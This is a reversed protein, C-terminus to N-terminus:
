GGSAPGEARMASLMLPSTIGHQAAAETLFTALWGLADLSWEAVTGTFTANYRSPGCWLEDTIPPHLSIPADGTLSFSGLVDQKFERLWAVIEPAAQRFEPNQGGDVTVRVPTRAQTPCDAFWGAADLLGFAPNMRAAAPRGALHEVPLLLRVGELRLTGIRSAVDGACALFAQVPLTGTAPIPDVLMVQFWAVQAPHGQAGAHESADNMGWVGPAGEVAQALWGMATSRAYFLNYADASCTDPDRWPHPVLEGYLGAYLTSSM